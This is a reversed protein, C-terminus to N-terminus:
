IEFRTKSGEHPIRTPYDGNFCALCYGANKNDPCLSLAIDRASEVSLFGLTDAGIMEAIEDISHNNAILNEPSDVDTGYYCPHRFPPSSIRMHIEKAGSSRLLRIIRESTTGRVISDDILVIRKGDVVDKIANLKMRVLDYREDKGPAIFTRGIYKNKILGMAYPIGSARSYGLAADLGSDPVGVVIDADAPDEQFLRRGVETRYRHVPISDVVSDNRSFYIYEFICLSNRERGCHSKISEIRCNDSVVVIEGPLLERTLEAGVADLACSESSFVVSGDMMRGMCLPRLGHPDRCAILKAPSMLILSYAGDIVNMARSVAEEISPSSLREKIICYSIVETDSTSHFICGGLELEKRLEFSNSLNGNHCIALQGKIHSTLMPQSNERTPNGSTSYRVHGVAIKASGMENLSKADFVEHVLGLDKKCRIIRDKNVAIGAAEQGRHQLATLGYYVDKALSTEKSSYIGFVGCEEHM